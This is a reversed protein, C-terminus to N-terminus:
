QAACVRVAARGTAPTRRVIPRPRCPRSLARARGVELDRQGLVRDGRGRARPVVVRSPARHHRRRSRGWSRDYSWPRLIALLVALEIVTFAVGDTLAGDHNHGYRDTGELTPDYPDGAWSRAMLIVTTLWLLPLPAIRLARAAPTMRRSDGVRRRRAFGTAVAPPRADADTRACGTRSARSSLTAVAV